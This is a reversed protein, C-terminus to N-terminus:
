CYKFFFCSFCKDFIQCFKPHLFRSIKQQCLFLLGIHDSLLYSIRVRIVEAIDKLTLEPHRRGFVPRPQQFLLRSVPLYLIYPGANRQQYLLVIGTRNATRYSQPQKTM